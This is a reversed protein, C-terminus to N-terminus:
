QTFSPHGKKQKQRQQDKKPKTFMSAQQIGTTSKKLKDKQQVPVDPIPASSAGCLNLIAITGGFVAGGIAGLMIANPVNIVPSLYSTCTEAIKLRPIIVEKITTLLNEYGSNIQIQNPTDIIDIGPLFSKYTSLINVYTSIIELKPLRNFFFRAENSLDLHLSINASYGLLTYPSTDMMSHAHEALRSCIWEANVAFATTGCTLAGLIAGSTLNSTILKIRSNM